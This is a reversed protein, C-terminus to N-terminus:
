EARRRRRSVVLLAGGTALAALALATAPGSDSGTFALQAPDSATAIYPTGSLSVPLLDAAVSYTGAPSVAFAAFYYTGPKLTVTTTWTGDAGVRISHDDAPLLSTVTGPDDSLTPFFSDSSSDALEKFLKPYLKTFYAESDKPTELSLAIDDGPTGTGAVTTTLYGPADKTATGTVKIGDVEDSSDGGDSSSGDAAAAAAAVAGVDVGPTGKAEAKFAARLKAAHAEGAAVPDTTAAGAGGLLRMAAKPQAAASVSSSSSGSIEVSSGASFSFEDDPYAPKTITPPLVTGAPYDTTLDIPDSLDSEVTVPQDSESGGLQVQSAAVTVDGFPLYASGQWTGDDAVVIEDSQFGGGFFNQDDDGSTSVIGLDIDDGPTGTGSFDVPKALISLGFPLLGKVYTTGTKPADLTPVTSQPADFVADFYSSDFVTKGHVGGVELWQDYPADAAFTHTLTFTTATTTIRALLTGHDSEGDYEYDDYLSIVSGTPATGKLTLTRDAGHIAVSGDGTELNPSTITLTRPEPAAKATPAPTTTATPTPTAASDAGPAPTGTPAPSGTPAPTVAPTSTPAPSATAAPTAAAPTAVPATAAFAPAAALTTGGACLLIAAPVVLARRFASNKM